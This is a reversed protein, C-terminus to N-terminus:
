NKKRVFVRILEFWAKIDMLMDFRGIIRRVSRVVLAIEALFYIAVLALLVGCVGLSIKLWEILLDM